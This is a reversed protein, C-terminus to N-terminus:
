TEYINGVIELSYAYDDLDITAIGNPSPKEYELQFRARDQSYYVYGIGFPTDKLKELRKEGFVEYIPMEGREVSILKSERTDPYVALRDGEYIEKDNIDKLGTFQHITTRLHENSITLEDKFRNEQHDFVRFKITRPKM